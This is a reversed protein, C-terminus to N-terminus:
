EGGGGSSVAPGKNGQTVKMGIGSSEDSVSLASLLRPSLYLALCPCSAHFPPPPFVSCFVFGSTFLAPKLAPRLALHLIQLSKSVLDPAVGKEEDGLDQIGCDILCARSFWRM